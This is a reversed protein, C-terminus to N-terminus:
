LYLFDRPNLTATKEVLSGRSKISNKANKTHTKAVEGRGEVKVDEVVKFFIQEKSAM